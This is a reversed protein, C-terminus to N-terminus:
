KRLFYHTLEEISRVCQLASNMYCTNGLNGLGVTGRTRGNRQARGRTMMGAPAPSTRGSSTNANPKLYNSITTSGNRTVSIPVGLSRSSQSVAVDSVWEGGAPGGVQEEIVIVEDQTLGAMEVTRHGNYKENTTEDKAELLERQSVDRLGVFTNVDLVLKQGPDVPLAINPAPSASRSQAPTLMGATSSNGGLGGLLRWVRVKTKMDIGTARKARKLFKQFIQHRSALIKVPILEAERITQHTTGASRDPLKLVTLIPPYLEYQLNETTESLSTNHCYRTIIPSGKALGYWKIVQDWAEQPIVEFDETMQLAPKLPIFPQDEEDEFGSSISDAVMELGTNDVPGIEGEMADKALKGKQLADTGRALVRTLWRESIVYGKQKDRMPQQVLKTVEAIQDDISPLREQSKSAVESTQSTVTTASSGSQPTLYSANSAADEDMQSDRPGSRSPMDDELVIDASPEQTVSPSTIVHQKAPSLPAVTDSMPEPATGSSAGRDAYEVHEASMESRTRKAPSSSRHHGTGGLVSRTASLKTNDSTVATESGLSESKTGGEM